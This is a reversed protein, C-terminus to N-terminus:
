SQCWPAASGASECIRPSSTAHHQDFFSPALRMAVTNGDFKVSAGHKVTPQDAGAISSPMATTGALHVSSFSDLKGGHQARERRYLPTM